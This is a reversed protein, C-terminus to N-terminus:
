MGWGRMLYVIVLGIIGIALPVTAYFKVAQDIKIRSAANRVVSITFFVLVGDIVFSAIWYWVGTVGAPLLYLLTILQMLALMKMSKSLKAIALYRGGIEVFPGEAIESEAEGIDVPVVGVKAPAVFLFLIFPILLLPWKMLPISSASCAELTRCGTVMITIVIAFIFSIEYAFAMQMERSVGVRSYPSRFALGTLLIGLTGGVMLYMLLILDGKRMFVMILPIFAGAFMLVLGTFLMLMNTDEPLKVKKTLLKVFDLWSQTIPPGVRGQIRATMKREIGDYLLAVLPLLLGLVIYTIYINVMVM